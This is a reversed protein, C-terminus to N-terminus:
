RIAAAPHKFGNQPAFKKAQPNSARVFALFAALAPSVFGDRRRIFVTEVRAEAPPLHHVRLKRRGQATKLLAKPLMTIGLGAAACGLIGDLTGFEIVKIKSVGKAHLIRELRIRYSCGERFVLIKAEDSENALQRLDKLKPGTIVALEEVFIKEEVLEPNLAPGAVFAGELRYALVEQTLMGTTGTALSLDVQPYKAGFKAVIQPLRIAATTELTGVRLPGSPRREPGTVAQRAEELLGQTKIAFPLLLEGARTLTVGRRHRHLLPAGLEEELAKIHMTVNSQVTHLTDAARTISGLQAVAAFIRLQSSDV